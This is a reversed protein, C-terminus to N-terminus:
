SVLIDITTNIESYQRRTSGVEKWKVFGRMMSWPVMMVNQSALVANKDRPASDMSIVNQINTLSKREDKQNELTLKALYKETESSHEAMTVYFAFTKEPAFYYQHLYFTKTERGELGEFGQMNWTVSRCIRGLLSGGEKCSFFTSVKEGKALIGARNCNSTAAHVHYKRIQVVDNCRHHPCKITREPCRAEHEKLEFLRNKIECGFQSYKCPHPIEEIMKNALISTGDAPMQRRCTPCSTVNVRCTKCVLHGVPCAAVPIERPIQLCVPCELEGLFREFGAAM